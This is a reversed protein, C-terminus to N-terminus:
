PNMSTGDGTAFPTITTGDWAASVAGASCLLLLLALCVIGAGRVASGGTCANEEEVRSGSAGCVASCETRKTM